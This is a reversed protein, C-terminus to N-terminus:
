APLNETLSTVSGTVISTEALPKAVRRTVTTSAGTSMAKDGATTTSDITTV